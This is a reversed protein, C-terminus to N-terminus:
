AGDLRAARLAKQATLYAKHADGKCQSADPYPSYKGYIFDKNIIRVWNNFNRSTLELYKMIKEQTGVGFYISLYNAYFLVRNYVRKMNRAAMKPKFRKGHLPNFCRNAKIHLQALAKSMKAVARENRQAPSFFVNLCTEVISSMTRSILEVLSISSLDVNM